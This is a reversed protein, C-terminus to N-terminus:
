TLRYRSHRFLLFDDNKTPKLFCAKSVASVIPESKVVVRSESSPNLTSETVNEKEREKSSLTPGACAESIQTSLSVKEPSPLAELEPVFFQGDTRVIEISMKKLDKNISLIDKNFTNFDQVTLHGEKIFDQLQKSAETM